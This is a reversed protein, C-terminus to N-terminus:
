KFDIELDEDANFVEVVKALKKPVEKKRKPFFIGFLRSLAKRTHFLVDKVLVCNAELVGLSDFLPDEEQGERLL